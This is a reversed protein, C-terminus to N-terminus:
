LWADNLQDRVAARLTHRLAIIVDRWTRADTTSTCSMHVCVCVCVAPRTRYSAAKKANENSCFLNMPNCQRCSHLIIPKVSLHSMDPTYHLRHLSNLRTPLALDWLSWIFVPLPWYNVVNYRDKSM